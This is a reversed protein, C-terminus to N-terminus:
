EGAYLFGLKAVVASDQLQDNAAYRKLLLLFGLPIGIVYILIGLAGLAAHFSWSEDYCPLTVDVDIYWESNIKKCKFVSMSKETLMPYCIFLFINLWKVSSDIIANREENIIANREEEEEDDKAVILSSLALRCAAVVSIIVVLGIPLMLAITQSTYYNIPVMCAIPLLATLDLNM